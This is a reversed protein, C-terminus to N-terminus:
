IYKQNGENASCYLDNSEEFEESSFMTSSLRVNEEGKDFAVTQFSSVWDQLDTETLAVVDQNIAKTV